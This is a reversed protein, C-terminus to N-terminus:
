YTGMEVWKEVMAVIWFTGVLRGLRDIASRECRMRGTLALATWGVIVALGSEGSNVAWAIQAWWRDAGIWPFGVSSSPLSAFRKVVAGAGVHALNATLATVVAAASMAGPQRFVRGLRPRPRRLVVVLLAPFVFAVVDCVTAFVWFAKVLWRNLGPNLVNHIPTRRLFKAWALGCPVAAVLIMADLLGLRRSPPPRM